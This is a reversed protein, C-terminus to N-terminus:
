SSQRLMALLLMPIVAIIYIISTATRIYYSTSSFVVGNRVMDITTDPETPAWLISYM